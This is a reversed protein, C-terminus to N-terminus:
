KKLISNVFPNNSSPDVILKTKLINKFVYLFM